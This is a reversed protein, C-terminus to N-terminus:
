KRWPLNGGFLEDVKENWQEFFESRVSGENGDLRYHALLM